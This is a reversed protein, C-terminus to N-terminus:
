LQPRRDNMFLFYSSQPRKPANPDKEKHTKVANTTYAEDDDDKKTKKIPKAPAKAPVAKSVATKKM